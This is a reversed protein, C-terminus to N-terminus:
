RRAPRDTIRNGRHRRSLQGHHRDFLLARRDDLDHRVGHQDRRHHGAPSSRRGQDPRGLHRRRDRQRGLYDASIVEIGTSSSTSTISTSGASSAGGSGGSGGSGSGSVTQGVTLGVTAVVGSIPSTMTAGALAAQASALQNQAATLAAQDAALQAATASDSEDSDVRAQDTAVTANDQAVTAALSASNITALPQGAAVTQGQTVLVSTVVGSSSFTLTDDVAPALTGTASVSQKITGTAVTQTTTTTTAAAAPTSGGDSVALYTGVGAGVLIVAVGVTSWRPHARVTRGVSKFPNM